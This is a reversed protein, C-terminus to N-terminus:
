EPRSVVRVFQYPLLDLGGSDAWGAAVLEEVVKADPIRHAEPPGVPLDGPKFDVVVLRGGPRVTQLLRTFYAVREGIHHYTDVLLVLDVEAPKLGPNDATGLRPSVNATGDRAARKTMWEVLSAEIDVAIVHGDPGVAASLHPNFYGTGAGIDAVTSGPAISLAGVLVVPMQWADREPDDFVESWKEADAFSHDVTAHDGGHHPRGHVTHTEGPAGHAEVAVPAPASVPTPPDAPTAGCAFLILLLPM